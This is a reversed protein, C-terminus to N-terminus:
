GGPATLAPELEEGSLCMRLTHLQAIFIGKALPETCCGCM